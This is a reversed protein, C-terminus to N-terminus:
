LSADLLTLVSGSSVNCDGLTDVFNAQVYFHLAPQPGFVPVPVSLTALGRSDVPTTAVTLFSGADFLISGGCPQNYFPATGVSLFLFALDGPQGEFDLTLTEGERAPSNVAFSRHPRVIETVVAGSGASIPSGPFGDNCQQLIETSGFLLVKGGIGASGGLFTCGRHVLEDANGLSVGAAGSGGSGCMESGFLSTAVPSYGPGGSGGRFDCGSAYVFDIGTFRLGTGGGGGTPGGVWGPAGGGGSSTVGYLHVTSNTLDIGRGPSNSEYSFLSPSSGSAGSFVSDVVVVDTSEVVDCAPRGSSSTHGEVWVVGLCDEISLERSRLGHLSTVRGAALDLVDIAAAYPAADVDALIALHKDVVQFDAYLGDRVLVTDGDATADVADQIEVFDVGPGGDDDVVWVVGQAAAPCALLTAVLFLRTPSDAAPPLTRKM